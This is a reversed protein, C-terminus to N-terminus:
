RRSRWPPRFSSTATCLASTPPRRRWREHALAPRAPGRSTLWLEAREYRARLFDVYGLEARAQAVGLETLGTDAVRHGRSRSCTPWARRTWAACRTSSRRPSSSAFESGSSSPRVATSWAAPRPACRNRSDPRPQVRRGRCRPRGGRDGRHTAHPDSRRTRPDSPPSEGSPPKTGDGRGPACASSTRSPTRVCGPRVPRQPPWTTGPWTPLAPDAAGPPERGAPEDLNSPRAYGRDRGGPEGFCLSGLAAEHLIAESAAALHRQQSLLWTEFAPAGRVAMGQLLDSGLGPLQVADAWAGKTM